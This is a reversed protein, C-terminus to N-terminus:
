LYEMRKLCNIFVNSMDWKMFSFQGAYNPEPEESEDPGDLPELYSAPAWGRQAECQCFWWGLSLFVVCM